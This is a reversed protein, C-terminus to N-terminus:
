VSVLGLLVDTPVTSYITVGVDVVPEHGPAGKVIVTDTLGLGATVFIFVSVTQLPSTVFILRVELTGLLKAHVIPVTLAPMVPAVAPVPLEM